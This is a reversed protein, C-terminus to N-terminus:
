DEDERQHLYRDVKRLLADMPKGAGTVSKLVGARSRIEDLYAAPDLGGRDSAGRARFEGLWRAILRANAHAEALPRPGRRPLVVRDFATQALEGPQYRTVLFSPDVGWGIPRVVGLGAGPGRESGAANQGLLDAAYGLAEMEHRADYAGTDVKVVFLPAESGAAGVYFIASKHYVGHGAGPLVRVLAPDVALDGACIDLAASPPQSAGRVGVPGTM